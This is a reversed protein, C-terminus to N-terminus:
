INKNDRQEEVDGHSLYDEKLNEEEKRTLSADKNPNKGKSKLAIILFFIVAVILTIFIWEM